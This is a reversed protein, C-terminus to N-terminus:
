KKKKGNKKGGFALNVLHDALANEKRPVWKISYEEFYELLELVKDRHEMLDKNNVKFSGCVQKIILQSDGIIHLKKIKEQKAHILSAILARYEAINSTGKGCKRYGQFVINKNKSDLAIYGLAMKGNRIGGDFYLIIEKIM